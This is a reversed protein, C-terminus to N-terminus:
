VVPVSSTSTASSGGMNFVGGLNGDKIQQGIRAAEIYMGAKAADRLIGSKKFAYKRAAWLVALMGAEDAINGLPIKSTLPSLKDSAWERIFGYAAGAPLITMLRDSGNSSGGSRRSSKRGSRKRRAMPTVSRKSKKLFPNISRMFAASRGRRKKSAM